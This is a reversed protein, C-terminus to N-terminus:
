RDMDFLSAVAVSPACVQAWDQLDACDAGAHASMRAVDRGYALQRHAARRSPSTAAASAMIDAVLFDGCGASVVVADEGLAHTAM